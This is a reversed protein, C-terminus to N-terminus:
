EARDDEARGDKRGVYFYRNGGGLKLKTALQSLKRLSFLATKRLNAMESLSITSPAPFAIEEEHFVVQRLKNREFAGRQGKTTALMVHFPPMSTPGKKFRKGFKLAEYFLNHNGELPGHAILFGGPKLLRLIRPFDSPLDTLHELVDGLHLVDAQMDMEDFPSHVRIGKDALESAFDPNYDVGVADWGVEKMRILLRGDGCGYDLFIGKPLPEVFNLVDRFKDLTLNEPRADPDLMYDSGYMHGLMEADPMPSCYLSGCGSCERYPFRSGRFELELWSGRSNEAGCLPCTRGDM